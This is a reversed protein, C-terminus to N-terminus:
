QLARDSTNAKQARSPTAVVKQDASEEKRIQNPANGHKAAARSTTTAKAPRPSGRQRQRQRQEHGQGQRVGDQNERIREQRWRQWRKPGKRGAGKGKPKGKSSPQCRVNKTRPLDVTNNAIGDDDMVGATATSFVNAPDVHVGAAKELWYIEKHDSAQKAGKGKGKRAMAETVMKEVSYNVHEEPSM